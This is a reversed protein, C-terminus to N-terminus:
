KEEDNFYRAQQDQGAIGIAGKPKSFGRQTDNTQDKNPTKGILNSFQTELLGLYILFAGPFAEITNLQM